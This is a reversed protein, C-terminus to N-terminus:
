FGFGLCGIHFGWFLAAPSRKKKMMETKGMQSVHHAYKM